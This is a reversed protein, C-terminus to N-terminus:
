GRPRGRGFERESGSHRCRDSPCVRGRAEEGCCRQPHLGRPATVCPGGSLPRTVATPPAPRPSPGSPPGGFGVRGRAGAPSVVAGPCEGRATLFLPTNLYNSALRKRQLPCFVVRFRGATRPGGRSRAGGPAWGPRAAWGPEPCLRPHGRPVRCAPASTLLPEAGRRAADVGSGALFSAGPVGFEPLDTAFRVAVQGKDGADEEEAAGPPLHPFSPCRPNAGQCGSGPVCGLFGPAWLEVHLPLNGTCELLTARGGCAVRAWGQHSVTARIM